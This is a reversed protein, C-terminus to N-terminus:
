LLIFSINNMGLKRPQKPNIRHYAGKVQGVSGTRDVGDEAAKINQKWDKYCL